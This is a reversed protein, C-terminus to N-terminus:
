SSKDQLFEGLIHFSKLSNVPSLCILLLLWSFTQSNFLDKTRWDDSTISGKDVPKFFMQTGLKVSASTRIHRWDSLEDRYKLCSVRSGSLGATVDRVTFSHSVPDFEDLLVLERMIVPVGQQVFDPDLTEQQSCEVVM